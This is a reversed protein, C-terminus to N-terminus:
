KVQVPYGDKLTWKQGNGFTTVHGAELKAVAAPPLSEAASSDIKGDGGEGPVTAKNDFSGPKGGAIADRERHIQKQLQLVAARYTGKSNAIDLYHLAKDRDSERMVGLPNMARAWHEALQLNAMGFAVLAPDNTAVEGKQILKDFPVIGAYRKVNESESLAAPIAADAAKLILNLNEERTARTRAAANKSIGNAAFDQKRQAYESDSVNNKEREQILYKSVLGKNEANMGTANRIAAEDGTAVVYKAIAQADYDSLSPGGKMGKPTIKDNPLPPNGTVNDKLKGTSQDQSIPHLSGDAATLWGSPSWKERTTADTKSRIYNPDAPGGPIPVISGDEEQHWGFPVKARAEAASKMYAPDAPGGPIPRVKGDQSVDWGFPTKPENAIDAEQRKLAMHAPNVIMNGDPGRILPSQANHLDQQQLQNGLKFNELADKRTAEQSANYAAVGRIGGEGVGGLFSGPGGRTTAMMSLGAQLLGQRMEPTVHIGLGGLFSGEGQQDPSPTSTSASPALGRRMAPPENYGLAQSPEDAATEPAHIAKTIAAVGGTPPANDNGSAMVPSALGSDRAATAIESGNNRDVESRWRGTAAPDLRVPDDPNVSDFAPASAGIGATVPRRNPFAAGFREDFDPAGGDEYGRAVGGSAYRQVRGGRAMGGLSPFVYNGGSGYGGYDSADLGPLPSSSSGLDSAPIDRDGTSFRNGLVGLGKMQSASPLGSGSDQQKPAPATILNAHASPASPAGKGATVGGATPIWGQFQDGYPVAVGGGAFGARGGRDMPELDDDEVGGGDARWLIRGGDRAFLSAAALGAGAVQTWPNPTPGQTNSTGYNSTNTNSTGGMQSGVGTDIAALWQAVQFPYGQQQYYDQRGQTDQAQQTTQQLTGAGIQSQGGQLGSTFGFQQQQQAAGLGSKYADSRLGAIVPAQARTQGEQTLAQAVAVRDGGLAGQAAANGTTVSNARANQVDFDRQTADVVDNVYPNQYQQIDAATLPHNGAM